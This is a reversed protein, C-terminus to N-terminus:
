QYIVWLPKLLEQYLTPYIGTTPIAVTNMRAQITKYMYINVIYHMNYIGKYVNILFCVSLKLRTFNIHLQNWSQGLPWQEPMRFLQACSALTQYHFPYIKRIFYAIDWASKALIWYHKFFKVLMIFFDRGQLSGLSWGNPHPM